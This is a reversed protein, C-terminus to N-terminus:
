PCEGIKTCLLSKLSPDNDIATIFLDFISAPSLLVDIKQLAETLDDQTQIGTYPLNPGSYYLNDSSIPFTCASTSCNNSSSTCGKPYTTYVIVDNGRYCPTGPVCRSM